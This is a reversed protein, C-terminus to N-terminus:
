AVVELTFAQDTTVGLGNTARITLNYTGVQTTTGSLVGTTNNLTLGSPLSGSVISFAPTPSGTATFTFSGAAGSTFTTSTASTFAPATPDQFGYNVRPGSGDSLFSVLYSGGGANLTIAGLTANAVVGVTSNTSSVAGAVGTTGRGWTVAGANSLTGNSWTTSKVLYNGSTLATVGGSGVADEATSGVLSNTSSVAGKTSGDAGNGWTVAGVNAAAGDWLPSSVVYNGNDTLATVGGSGIQDNAHTGVLSNTSVVPGTLGSTGSVWTVAGAHGTGANNWQSSIVVFNSNSLVTIGDFGVHDDTQTGVLSNTSSIAGVTGRESGTLLTVAGADTAAGNDWNASVAVYKGNTLATIVLGVKDNATSGVLSNAAGVVGTTGSGGNGWTAAGADATGGNNWLPSAVVFNNSTLVTIGGSGLQDDQSSGVLSNNSSVLGTVGSSGSGWTVAGAATNAGNAWNSSVVVYNDNRLATVKAGVQDGTQSGVLSNSSSVAGTIATTGSAFTAAGVGSNWLASGVVYNGNTLETVGSFGVYSNNTTGVLSTGSNTVGTTGSVGNGFTVAGKNSSWNISKVVYNGNALATVGGSGINAGAADGVLSNTSSIAGALGSNGNGFTVAGKVTGWSASVVVYNGNTLGVVGDSGVSDSTATGVLSNTTSIEGFANENTKGSVGSVWTAAGADTVGSNKWHPSPIVFNGNTLATIPSSGVMDNDTSGYISNLVGVVGTVGTTGSSWTVAGSASNWNASRIVYNGNTLESLGTSGVMDSSHSGVLSNTSSIVGSVGSSGSGFTVAGADVTGGNNWLPNPVVYNGNELALIAYQGVSDNSTSGVLSNSSSVFGAVGSTATGFTVAGVDTASDSDWFPSLVVFNGNALATVGGSGVKDNTHSGKLTSLLQGTIGSYLYVAGADTAAFDDFPATIVVNGNTLTVITNGFGNSASPSPDAFYANVTITRSLTAANYNTTAAATVTVLSSGTPLVTGLPSDYSLAGTASGGEVGAVSANLQTASLATGLSIPSPTAWTITQNAKTINATTSPQTLTYNASSSGSISFGTITVAIAEAVNASAFTGVPTGGLNVTDGSVIGSLASNITNLTATTNSDYVKNNATTNIVTLNKTNVTLTFSQSASPSVKNSVTISFSHVGAAPTGTLVGSTANLTVGSPLGTASFTIGGPQNIQPDGTATVTFSWSDGYTITTNNASTITPPVPTTSGALIIGGAQGIGGATFRTYFNNNVTDVLPSVLGGNATSGTISFNNGVTGSSAGTGRLSTTAGANATTGNDWNPSTILYNGNSVATVGGSGVQDSSTSGYVSNTSSVSGNSTAAGSVWTVAGVNTTTGNDWNTSVIVYNGNSALAVVGGNGVQDAATSGVISNVTGVTASTAATGSAWTTAGVNTITGNDWNPSAIVYNGNSLATVGGSGVQDSATSGVVSNATGVVGFIGSTRSGWTVAGVDATGGNDWTSTVVVYNGNAGSLAVVSTGVADGATSGVLSNSSSAVVNSFAGSGFTAAGLGGNWLPSKVVFNGNNLVTVGGSGVQDSRLQDGILSNGSSLVGTVGSASSGFTAAGCLTAGAQVYTPTCVVYAGNTLAYVGGSGVQTEASGGYLSNSVSIPGNHVESGSSGGDVLTVAGANTKNGLEPDPLDWLSSNIVFKGNGTLTTLGGSGVQDNATSGYFSNSTSVTGTIGSSGNGWTVAGANAVSGDWSPSAFAFNGNSLLILDGGGVFDSATSGLISNTSSISGTIGSSNSWTVAGVDTTGGNNWLPSSVVYGGNALALVKGTNSGSTGGGVQDSATTGILSNTSAVDGSIGTTGNGLTVAGVNATGGNDWNPSKVVFNGNSLAIVGGSGVNNNASAGKLTSILSGTSGNFLYVAGADTGGADDLPATVVVNGTSLPLITSGFGNGASPSPDVFSLFSTPTTRDELFELNLRRKYGKVPKTMESKQIGRFWKPALRNWISM